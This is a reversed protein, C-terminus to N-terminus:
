RCQDPGSQVHVDIRQPEAVSGCVRIIRRLVEVSNCMQPRVINVTGAIHCHSSHFAGDIAAFWGNDVKLYFPGTM